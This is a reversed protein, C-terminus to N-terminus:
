LKKIIDEKGVGKTVVQPRSVEQYISSAVMSHNSAHSPLNSPNSIISAGSAKDTESVLMVVKSQKSQMRNPNDLKM